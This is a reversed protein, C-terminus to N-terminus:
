TLPKARMQSWVTSKTAHLAVSDTKPLELRTLDVIVGPKMACDVIMDRPVGFKAVPPPFIAHCRTQRRSRMFGPHMFSLTLAQLQHKHEASM